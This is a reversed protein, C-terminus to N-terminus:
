NQGQQPRCVCGQTTCAEMPFNAAGDREFFFKGRPRKYNGIENMTEADYLRGNIMTFRISETNQINELPNKDLIILDALKGATLSGLQKQMGLYNAGNITACRLVQLNSMGGQALMWMEWHAGLGQLQGHAGLNIDIGSKQMTNLSKSTLIHGNEYEEDPIMTRFRSRTDIVPRPTFTLLRTKEWVNTKQYWYYEGTVGGYNVILTPTNHAKTAKWLNLVDSYLPAVPINHEIGTHGDIVQTLNHYLFSGGEPVVLVNQERAAQIIQQRQERRPQNYSKVSFAGYAKNRRIASRADDLSNVVSKFDGEAGYLITGTSFIRPGIMEGAKVMEAHSFIMESNASPDHSTTVGYALNAFYEWKQKPSIGYRFDGVHAHVDIIGPMITKGACDIVSVSPYQKYESMLGVADIKNNKVVLFGNEIVKEGEMTIIRANTFVIVGTPRDSEIQLNINIGVTDLPPLSDKAGELWKFRETLEDSFLTNGLTWFVKKSDKSFHLNIGADRGVQAVPFAKTDASLGVPKGTQPMAALYVKHLESFAVWKNDPSVAYQNAYKSTFIAKDDTGDLKCSRLEKSLAGFLYGGTNYFIRSGNMNFFPNEGRSTVFIPDQYSGQTSNKLIYIGANLGNIFGQHENGAEKRYVIDNGDPDYQPTRYLANIKTIKRSVGTALNLIRITGSTTDNWTVYVIEKGNPSFAPEFEFDTDQTLRRPTGNPLEKLWLHGIASFVVSKGDPSTKLQRIVKVDFKDDFASNEFSLTKAVKQQVNAKFPIVDDSGTEANIKHIKGNAWIVINKDDPTWNFGTYVGFITWAEQQDKSLKDYVQKIEGTELNFICLVSKTRVRRVFALYKGNHSVQPRCAGGNIDILNELKGEQRDFRRIAFIRNNPDKNYQFSGGPYLDESFYVYRGDLSVTPENVDQQDNKRETLQMGAGGSIHYLWMEGAGLSRQSTFHKRAM